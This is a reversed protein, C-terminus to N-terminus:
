APLTVTGQSGDVTILEGEEILATANKVSTVAPIGYERSLVTGHALIGGTELVLGRILLFVPTWGPDTSNTVLIDGARVRSLERIDRVVRAVGSARGSSAPVGALLKADGANVTEPALDWERDGQLFMPPPTHLYRRYEAKRPLIRNRADQPTMRRSMLDFVEEKSLFWIDNADALFNMQLLRRGIALFAKRQGYFVRDVEFRQNERFLSYIQAYKLLFSFIRKKLFGWPQSSLQQLISRTMEERRLRNKDLAADPAAEDAAQVFLKLMYLLLGPDDGWRPFSLERDEAGRFDYTRCLGKLEAALARGEESDELRAFIESVPYDTFAGALEPAHKIRRSLNWLEQNLEV